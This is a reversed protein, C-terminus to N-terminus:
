NNKVKTTDVNLEKVLRDLKKENMQLKKVEMKQQYLVTTDAKKTKTTDPDNIPTASIAM